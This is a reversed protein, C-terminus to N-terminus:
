RPARTRFRRVTPSSWWAKVPTSCATVLRPLGEVEVFCIRCQGVVTLGPHYCYTPVEIGVQKAAEVLNTGDPVQVEHGDITVTVM